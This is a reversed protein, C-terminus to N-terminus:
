WQGEEHSLDHLMPEEEWAGLVRNGSATNDTFQSTPRFRRRREEEDFIAWITRLEDEKSLGGIVKEKRQRSRLVREWRSQLYQTSSNTTNDLLRLQTVRKQPIVYNTPTIEDTQYLPEISKAPIKPRPDGNQFNTGYIHIISSNKLSLIDSPRLPPEHPSIASSMHITNLVSSSSKRTTDTSKELM